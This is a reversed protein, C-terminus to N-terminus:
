HGLSRFVLGMNVKLTALEQGLKADKANRLIPCRRPGFVDAKCVNPPYIDNFLHRRPLLLSQTVRVRFPTAPSSKYHLDNLLQIAADHSDADTQEFLKVADADPLNYEAPVMAFTFAMLTRRNIGISDSGGATAYLSRAYVAAGLAVLVHANEAGAVLLECGPHSDAVEKVATQVSPMLSGGGTVLLAVLNMGHDKHGQGISLVRKATNLTRQLEKKMRAVLHGTAQEFAALTLPKKEGGKLELM